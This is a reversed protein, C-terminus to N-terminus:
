ANDSEGGERRVGLSAAAAELEAIEAQMQRWRALDAARPKPTHAMSNQLKRRRRRLAIMTNWYRRNRERATRAVAARDEPDWSAM